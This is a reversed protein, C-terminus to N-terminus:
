ALVLSFILHLFVFEFLTIQGIWNVGCTNCSDKLYKKGGNSWAMMEFNSWTDCFFSGSLSAAQVFFTSRFYLFRGWSFLSPTLLYHKFIYISPHSHARTKKVWGRRARWLSQLGHQRPRTGSGLWHTSWAPNRISLHLRLHTPRNGISDWLEILGKIKTSDGIRERYYTM